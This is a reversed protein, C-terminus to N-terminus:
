YTGGQRAAMEALRPAAKPYLKMLNDINANQSAKIIVDPKENHTRSNGLYIYATNQFTACTIKYITDYSSFEASAKSRELEATFTIALLLRQTDRSVFVKRIKGRCLSTILTVRHNGHIRETHKTVQTLFPLYADWIYYYYGDPSASAARDLECVLPLRVLAWDSWNHKDAQEILDKGWLNQSRPYADQVWRILRLLEVHGNKQPELDDAMRALARGISDLHPTGRTLESKPKYLIGAFATYADGPLFDTKGRLMDEWVSELRDDKQNYILASTLVERLDVGRWEGNLSRRTFVQYLPDALEDRCQLEACLMFLNYLVEEPCTKPQCVDPQHSFFVSLRRALEREAQHREDALPLGRLLWVYPDEDYGFAPFEKGQLWRLLEAITWEGRGLWRTLKRRLNAEITDEM